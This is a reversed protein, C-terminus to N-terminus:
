NQLIEILMFVIIPSLALAYAQASYIPEVEMRVPGITSLILGTIVQIAATGYFGAGNHIGFITGFLHPPCLEKISVQAVLVGGSLASLVVFIAYLLPLPIRSFSVILFIWLVAQGIAACVVVPKRAQVVRDSIYGFLMSGLGTGLTFTILATGTETTSLGHVHRLLPGAWLAQFAQLSGFTAFFIVSTAWLAPVSIWVRLAIRLSPRESPTASQSKQSSPDIASIPPLGRDTPDNRLLFWTTVSVLATM